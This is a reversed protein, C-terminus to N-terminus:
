QCFTGGNRRPELDLHFHRAHDADAGPGLVTKFPGCAAKRVRGLFKEHKEPPVPGIEVRTGDTLTFAAIDLANGFAHESIKGGDHRPRCVYASAQSVSKVEANFETKAAPQVVDALFRAATEAMLCNLEAAPKIEVSTGLTKVIVPYPISCGIKSDHEAKKDEFEVGLAKLRERCATEEAPMTAAPTELARPDSPKQREAEPKEELSPLPEEPRAAKPKEPPQPATEPAQPKEDQSAPRKQPLPPERSPPEPQQNLEPIPASAPLNLTKASAPAPLLAAALVVILWTFRLSTFFQFAAM